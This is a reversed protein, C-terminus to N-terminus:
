PRQRNPLCGAFRPKKDSLRRDIATGQALGSAIDRDIGSIGVVDIASHLAASFVMRSAVAYQYRSLAYRLPLFVPWCCQVPCWGSV